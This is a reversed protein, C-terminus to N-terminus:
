PQIEAEMKILEETMKTYIDMLIEPNNLYYKYSAEYEAENTNHTEFIQPYYGSKHERLLSDKSVLRFQSAAQAFHM